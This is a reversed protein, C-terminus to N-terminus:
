WRLNSCVCVHVHLCLEERMDLPLVVGEPVSNQQKEDLRDDDTSVAGETEEKQRASGAGGGFM